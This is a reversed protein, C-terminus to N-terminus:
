HPRCLLHCASWRLNSRGHEQARDLAEDSLEDTFDSGDDCATAEFDTMADEEGAM